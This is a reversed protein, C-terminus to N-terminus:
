YAYIFPHLLELSSGIFNFLFGHHALQVAVVPGMFM